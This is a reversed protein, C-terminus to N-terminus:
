SHALTRLYRFWTVLVRKSSMAARSMRAQGEPDDAPFGGFLIGIRRMREQARAPLSWAAAAGGIVKVFDRRQMARGRIRIVGLNTKLQFMLFLFNGAAFRPEVGLTRQLFGSCRM